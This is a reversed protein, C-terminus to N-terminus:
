RLDPSVTSESVISEIYGDVLETRIRDGTDADRSSKLIKGSPQLRCISFGRSLTKIPSLAEIKAAITAFGHRHRDLQRDIGMELRQSLDDLKQMRLQLSEEPRLLVPRQRLGDLRMRLRDILSRMAISSRNEISSLWDRIEDQNPIIREAAESPTAARLDAVLDCLTVDIDHGVASVTPISSKGVARVVVEDNFCWLDEMSGGGRGVVLVDLSPRLKNAIIIGRAIEEAAGDGQVKAPIVIIESGPWRRHAIELFDRIAAGSPSTVFGIRTPFAPMPRKKTPDFLGERELKAHLQKLALQLAGVGQPEIKEIVLQYSGRPSYVDLRGYCVVSQGDEISFKLREATSRWIVARIQSAEDKLSLYVHGSRPQSFDSVEGAVWVKPISIEIAAAVCANLQSISLPHESTEGPIASRVTSESIPRRSRSSGQAAGEEGVGRGSSPTLPSSENYGRGSSTLPSRDNEGNGSTSVHPSEEEFESDDWLFRTM